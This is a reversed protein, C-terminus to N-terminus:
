SALCRNWIRQPHVHHPLRKYPPEMHLSVPCSEGDDDLAGGAMGDEDDLMPRAGGGPLAAPAPLAPAGFAGFKSVGGAAGSAPPFQFSFGASPAPEESAAGAPAPAEGLRAHLSAGFRQSRRQKAAADSEQQQSAAAAPPQVPRGFLPGRGGAAGQGGPLPTGLLPSSTAAAPPFSSAFGQAAGASGGAQAAPGAASAALSPAGSAAMPQSARGFPFGSAAGAGTAGASSPRTAAAAAGFRPMSALAAQKEAASQAATPEARDASLPRAAGDPALPRGLRAAVPLRGAPAAQEPQESAAAAGRQRPPSRSSGPSGGLGLHGRINFLRAAGGAARREATAREARQAPGATPAEGGPRVSQVSQAPPASAPPEGGQQLLGGSGPAAKPPSQGFSFSSAPAGAADTPAGAGPAPRVPAATAAGPATRATAAAGRAGRGAGVVPRAHQTHSGPPTRLVSPHVVMCAHPWALWMIIHTVTLFSVILTGRLLLRGRTARPSEAMGRGASRRLIAAAKQAASLSSTRTGLIGGGRAAFASPKREQM